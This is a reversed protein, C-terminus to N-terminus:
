SSIHLPGYFYFRTILAVIRTAFRSSSINFNSLKLDKSSCAPITCAYSIIPSKDMLVIKKVPAPATEIFRILPPTFMSSSPIAFLNASEPKIIKPAENKQM